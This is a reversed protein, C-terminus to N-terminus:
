ICTGVNQGQPACRRRDEARVMADYGLSALDELVVGLGRTRLLPSNEFSLALGYKELIACVKWIGSREPLAQEKVRRVSTKAPFDEAFFTLQEEGLSETLPASTTGSQSNQCIGDRQRQLLVQRPYKEIEVACQPIDSLM